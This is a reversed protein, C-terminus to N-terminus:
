SSDINVRLRYPLARGGFSSECVTGDGCNHDCVGPKSLSVGPGFESKIRIM